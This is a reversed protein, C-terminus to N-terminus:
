FVEVFIGWIILWDPVTWVSEVSQVMRVNLMRFHNGLMNSDRYECIYINWARIRKFFTCIKLPFTFHLNKKCLILPYNVRTYQIFFYKKKNVKKPYTKVMRAQVLHLSTVLCTSKIVFKWEHKKRVKGNLYKYLFILNDM